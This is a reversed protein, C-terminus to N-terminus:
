AYLGLGVYACLGIAAWFIVADLLNDFVKM